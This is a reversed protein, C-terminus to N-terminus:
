AALEAAFRITAELSRNQGEAGDSCGRKYCGRERTFEVEGLCYMSGEPTLSIKQVHKAIEARAIPLEATLM